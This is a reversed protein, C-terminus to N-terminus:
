DDYQERYASDLMVYGEDEVDLRKVIWMEPDVEQDDGWAEFQVMNYCEDPDCHADDEHEFYPGCDAPMHRDFFEKVAEKNEGTWQVAVVPWARHQTYTTMQKGEVFSNRAVPLVRVQLGRWKM